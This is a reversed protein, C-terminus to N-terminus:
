FFLQGGRAHFVNFTPSVLTPLYLNNWFPPLPQAGTEAVVISDPTRPFDVAGAAGAISIRDQLVEGGSGALETVFYRDSEPRCEPRYLLPPLQNNPM